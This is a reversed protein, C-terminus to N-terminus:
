RAGYASYEIGNVMARHRLSGITGDIHMVDFFMDKLLMKIGFSTACMVDDHLPEASHIAGLCVRHRKDAVM